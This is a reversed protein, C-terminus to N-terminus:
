FKILKLALVENNSICKLIYAGKSVSNLPLIESHKGAQQNKFHFEGVYKGNLDSLYMGVDCTKSLSYVITCNESTPNPFLIGTTHANLPELFSPEQGWYNIGSPTFNGAFVTGNVQLVPMKKTAGLWKYEIPKSPFGLPIPVLSLIVSDIRDISSKVRLVDFTGAPTTISGWGDVENVRTQNRKFTVDGITPLPLTISYGSNSSDINGYAIPFKYIVDPSSYIAPLPLTVGSIDVNAGFGKIELRNSSTGAYNYYEYADSVPLNGIINNGLLPQAYDCSLFTLQFILPTASMPLYHQYGITGGTLNMMNWNSNSGTITEDITNSLPVNTFLVSDPLISATTPRPFDLRTLTIPSQANATFTYLCCVTIFIKKM